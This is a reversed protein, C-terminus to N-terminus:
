KYGLIRNMWGANDKFLALEESSLTERWGSFPLGIKCSNFRSPNGGVTHHTKEKFHRLDHNPLEVQLWNAIRPLINQPTRCLDEYRIRIREAPITSLYLSLLIRLNISVYTKSSVQVPIVEGGPFVQPKLGPFTVTYHTKKYSHAVGRGDRTIHLFKITYQRQLAKKLLLARKVDKSSDVLVQAGSLDFLVEYFQTVERNWNKNQQNEFFLQFNSRIKRNWGMSSSNSTKQELAKFVGKKKPLSFIDMHRKLLTQHVKSWFACQQIPQGCVCFTNKKLEIPLTSIEGLSFCRNLSSIALDLITTGSHGCGLIFLITKKM